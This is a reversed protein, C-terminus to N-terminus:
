HSLGHSGPQVTAAVIHVGLGGPGASDRSGVLAAPAQLRPTPAGLRLRLEILPACFFLKQFM